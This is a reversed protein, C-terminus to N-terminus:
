QMQVAVHRNVNHSFARSLVTTSIFYPLPALKSRGPPGNNGRPGDAAKHGLGGDGCVPFQRKMM